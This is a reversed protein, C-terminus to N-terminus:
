SRRIQRVTKSGVVMSTMRKFDVSITLGNSNVEVGLCALADVAGISGAKVRPNGGKQYLQYCREVQSLTAPDKEVTM